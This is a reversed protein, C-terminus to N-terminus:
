FPFGVRSMRVLERIGKDRGVWRNRSSSAKAVTWRDEKIIRLYDMEHLTVLSALIQLRLEQPLLEDFHNRVVVPIPSFIDTTTIPIYDLASLPFPSSKSRGKHMLPFPHCCPPRPEADQLCLSSVQAITSDLEDVKLHTRWQSSFVNIGADVMDVGPTQNVVTHPPCVDDSKDPNRGFLLKRTLNSPTNPRSFKLKIRSMSRAALSRTSYVSLNSLSRSRTPIRKVAPCNIDGPSLTPPVTNSVPLDVAGRVEPENYTTSYTMSLGHNSGYSSPGPSSLALALPPSFVQGYGFQTPSFSLPPLIPPQEEKGKGKWNDLGSESASPLNETDLYFDQPNDDFLSSSPESSLPPPLFLSQHSASSTSPLDADSNSMDFLDHVVPMPARIPMPQTVGKGKGVVEEVQEGPEESAPPVDHSPMTQASSDLSSASHLATSLSPSGTYEDFHFLNDIGHTNSM